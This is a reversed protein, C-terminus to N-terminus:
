WLRPSPEEAERAKALAGERRWMYCSDTFGGMAVVSGSSKFLTAWSESMAAACQIFAPALMLLADLLPRDDPTNGLVRLLEGSIGRLVRAGVIGQVGESRDRWLADELDHMGRRREAARLQTVAVKDMEITALARVELEAGFREMPRAVAPAPAFHLDTLQIAVDLKGGAPEHGDLILDRCFLREGPRRPSGEAPDHSLAWAVTSGLLMGLTLIHSCGLPGGLLGGLQRAFGDDLRAGAIAEIRRIPDRCSEGKTLASAEFAIAPQQARITELTRTAPDVIGDLLMHHVVGSSQLDGGVPVFGRKRLDLVYGSTDLKGDSRQKLTVRLARTHLPHGCVDLRM